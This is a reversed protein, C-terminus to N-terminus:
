GVFGGRKGLAKAAELTQKAREVVPADIMKGHLSVAGKGMEKAEAIAKMVEEAYAVEEKTPSFIENIAPIHRPAVAAKGTFGLAKAFIADAILGDDDFADTFPTDYADIGAARAAMVLRERAYLIEEGSKTRKCRLDASLDEGGLFLATVRPSSTAIAFANEIGLATEILPILKIKGVPLGNKEELATLKEDLVRMAEASSSKPPMLAEPACPVIKELDEEQFGSEPANIRVIRECGFDLTQLANRVLLRAADKEAPAVSDELDLIVADARLAGGNQIMGPANGPLFLMSRRM